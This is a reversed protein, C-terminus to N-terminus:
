AGARHEVEFVYAQLEELWRAVQREPEKFSMLWQLASHDTRVVFPLGCLYYKFHRISLVMALLERSTVCYRWEAKNFAQSFYAVVREGEPGVQSLVGGVGVGSADTDLVFPLSLDAPALVPAESLARQLSSFAGQCQETWVFDSDKQPLQHLPAALCSFGQLFKRNYSALGLFSKLQKQNASTPWDAVAQVKAEMTGIGEGGVMHGLSQVERRMFHCKEPHLKLGTARIRELVRRLSELASHFSSGHALIDDLYM